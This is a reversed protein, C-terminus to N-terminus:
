IGVGGFRKMLKKLKREDGFSKMMKKMKKYHNLLERVEETKKGSGHAIREVRSRKILEPNQMEEETMSDMIIRFTQLKEEQLDMMDRPIKSGFPLMEMLKSLSGMKKMQEIQQYLDELTFKGSVLREASEEDFEVEKAKELLGQLDGFGILRSVFREPDFEEFDDAHEGVGMFYVPAGTTACASLAGGGKASGDLKTLIVGDVNCAKKFAAAQEGARQGITSDLVLLTKEPKVETYIRNIDRMLEDDLSHRGESDIITLGKGRFKEFGEGIIKLADKEGPSGYFPIHIEDSLQKLQEYAAPRFTDACILRSNFGKKKLYNALKAATTTKGSGQTGVLLIREGEQIPLKEGRGLLGVLEEYTIKILNESKDLVGPPKELFGREEINKSLKFVLEVNVDASLLTKQIEKIYERVTKKDVVVAKRLTTIAAQLGDKLKDFVM